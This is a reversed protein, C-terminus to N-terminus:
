FYMPILFNELYSKLFIRLKLIIDNDIEENKFIKVLLIYKYVYYVGIDTFIFRLFSQISRKCLTFETWDIHNMLCILSFENREQLLSNWYPTKTINPPLM